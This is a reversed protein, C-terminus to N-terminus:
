RQMKMSTTSALPPDTGSGRKMPAVMWARSGLPSIHYTLLRVDRRERTVKSASVGRSLPSPLQILSLDPLDCGEASAEGARGRPSWTPWLYRSVEKKNDFDLAYLAAIFKTGHRHRDKYQSTGM